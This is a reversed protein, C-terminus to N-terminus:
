ALTMMVDDDLAKPIDRLSKGNQNMYHANKAPFREYNVLEHDITNASV